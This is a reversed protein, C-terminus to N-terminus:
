IAGLELGVALERNARYWDVSRRLGEEIGITPEWKLLERAREIRAWTAPSM